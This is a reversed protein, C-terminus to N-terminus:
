TTPEVTVPLGCFAANGCLEDIRQEDMLDNFSVGAHSSAVALRVGPRDHGFGHPLSVVGPMMEDSVCALTQVSGVSSTIRAEAGDEIQLKKADIPNIILSCRPKGSVM